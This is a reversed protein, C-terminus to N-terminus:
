QYKEHNEKIDIKKDFTTNQQYSNFSYRGKIYIHDSVPSDTVFIWIMLCNKKLNKKKITKIIIDFLNYITLDNNTHSLPFKGAKSAYISQFM